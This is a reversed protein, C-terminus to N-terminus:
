CLMYLTAALIALELLSASLQLVVKNAYCLEISVCVTKIVNLFFTVEINHLVATVVQSGKISWDIARYDHM